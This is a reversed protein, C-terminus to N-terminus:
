LDPETHLDTPYPANQFLSIRVWRDSRPDFRSAGFCALKCRLMDIPLMDADILNDRIEAFPRTATLQVRRVMSRHQPHALLLRAVPDTDPFGKLTEFLAAAQRAIDLPLERDSGPEEFREGL